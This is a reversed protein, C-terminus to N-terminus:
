RELLIDFLERLREPSPKPRPIAEVTRQTERRRTARRRRRSASSPHISSGGEAYPGYMFGMGAERAPCFRLHARLAQKNRFWRGCYYCQLM